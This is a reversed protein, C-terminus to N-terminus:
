ASYYFMIGLEFQTQQSFIINGNIKIELGHATLWCHVYSQEYNACLGVIAPLNRLRM